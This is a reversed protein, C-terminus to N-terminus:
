DGSEVTIWIQESRGILEGAPTYLATSTFWKRGENKTVQGVAHYRNGAIPPVFVQATMTGLLMTQTSFDAAWGGPCDLAAWTISEAITGDRGGFATAADWPAAVIGAEIPGSFIRLGDGIDRDTGCTFCRPFPHHTYGPYARTGAEIANGDVFEPPDDVFSGQHGVGVVAGGHTLLRRVGDASEWALAVGLPPPQQLRVTTPGHGGWGEAFLGSVYGGNGSTAPGNFQKAILVM